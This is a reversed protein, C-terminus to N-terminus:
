FPTFQGLANRFVAGDHACRLKPLWFSDLKSNGLSFRNGLPALVNHLLNAGYMRITADKYGYMSKFMVSEQVCM